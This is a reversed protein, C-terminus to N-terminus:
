QVIHDTCFIKRQERGYFSEEKKDSKPSFPMYDSIPNNDVIKEDAQICANASRLKCPESYNRM